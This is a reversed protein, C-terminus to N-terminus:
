IHRLCLFRSDADMVNFLWYIQGGVNIAVEDAVWTDGANVKIPKLAADAKTTLERVWRYISTSGTKRGFYQEINQATKRYSVGDFYMDVPPARKM